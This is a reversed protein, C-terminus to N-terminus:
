PGTAWGLKHPTPERKFMGGRQLIAVVEFIIAPGTAWGPKHPTPERKFLGGRQSNLLLEYIIASGRGNNSSVM